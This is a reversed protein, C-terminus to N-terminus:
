YLFFLMGDCNYNELICEKNKCTFLNKPCKFNPDLYPADDPISQDETTDEVEEEETGKKNGKKTKKGKTTKTKKTKKKTKKSSDATKENTKPPAKPPHKPKPRGCNNEDSGDSCDREGDCQYKPLICEKNDCTFLKRPCEFDPGIPPDQDRRQRQQTTKGKKPPPAM